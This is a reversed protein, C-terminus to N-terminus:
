HRQVAVGDSDRGIVAVGVRHRNRAATLGGVADPGAGDYRPMSTRAGTCIGSYRRQSSRRTQTADSFLQLYM